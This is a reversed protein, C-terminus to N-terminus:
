DDLAFQFLSIHLKENAELLEVERREQDLTFLHQLHVGYFLTVSHM